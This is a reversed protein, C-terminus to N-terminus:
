YGSTGSRRKLRRLRELMPDGEEFTAHPAHTGNPGESGYTVETSQPINVFPLHNAVGRTWGAFGGVPAEQFDQPQLYDLQEAPIQGNGVAGTNQAVDRLWWNGENLKEGVDRLSRTAVDRGLSTKQIDNGAQLDRDFVAQEAASRSMGESVLKDVRADQYSDAKGRITADQTENARAQAATEKAMDFELRKAALLDSLSPSAKAAANAGAIDFQTQRDANHTAVNAGLEAQAMAADNIAKANAGQADLSRRAAGETLAQKQGLLQGLLERKSRMNVGGGRMGLEWLASDVEGLRQGREAELKRDGRVRAPAGIQPTDIQDAMLRSPTSALQDKTLPKGHFTNLAPVVPNTGSAAPASGRRALEGAGLDWANILAPAAGRRTLEAGPLDWANIPARAAGAQQLQKGSMNWENVPALPKARRAAPRMDSAHSYSGAYKDNGELDWPDAAM